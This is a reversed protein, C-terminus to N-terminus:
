VLGFLTQKAFLLSNQFFPQLFVASLVGNVSCIFWFKLINSVRVPLFHFYHRLNNKSYPFNNKEPLRRWLVCVGQSMIVLINYCMCSSLLSEWNIWRLELCQRISIVCRVHRIWIILGWHTMFWFMYAACNSAYHIM